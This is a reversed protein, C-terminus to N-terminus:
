KILGQMSLIIVLSAIANNFAHLLMSPWISHTRWRLFALALGIIFLVAFSGPDAHTVAFLLSSIVIAWGLPMGRLLGPFIFGRFFVEECFPAIFVAGILTAYTTFPAAKSRALLVQDNTQLNLHFTTIVYQYIDNVFLIAILLVVIWPLTRGPSFGRFGLSRLALRVHPTISRFAANAFHLPAILFAGEIIISFILTVIASSIDAQTSLHATSTTASNLSTLFIALVLWPVITLLAGLFTQQITWPVKNSEQQQEVM